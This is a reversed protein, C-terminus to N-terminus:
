VYIRISQRRLLCSSLLLVGIVTSLLIPRVGFTYGNHLADFAERQSSSWEQEDQAHLTAATFAARV